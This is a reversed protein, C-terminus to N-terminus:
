YVKEQWYLKACCGNVWGTKGNKLKVKYWPENYEVGDINVPTKYTTYYQLYEGVENTDMEGIIDANMKPLARVRLNEVSSKVINQSVKETKKYQGDSDSNLEKCYKIDATDVICDGDLKLISKIGNKMTYQLTGDVIKPYHKSKGIYASNLILTIRNNVDKIEIIENGGHISNYWVGIFKSKVGNKELIFEKGNFLLVSQKKDFVIPYNEGDITVNLTENNEIIPYKNGNIEFLLKDNMTTISIKSSETNKDTWNGELGDFNTNSCSFLMLSIFLLYNKM